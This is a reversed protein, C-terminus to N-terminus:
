VDMGYEFSDVGALPLPLMMQGLRQSITACAAPDIEVGIAMKQLRRCAEMSVGSGCFPDVIVSCAGLCNAILMSVWEIPKEHRHTGRAHLATIPSSFVDSMHRGRRDATFMYEGRPNTVSRAVAPRAGGYHAGDFVYESLEGYWMAYKARRLPRGKTYWSSVCDWTFIWAPAGYREIVDRQRLGDCFVVKRDGPNVDIDVDWPPDLIWGADPPITLRPLVDRADGAFISVYEDSFFPAPIV